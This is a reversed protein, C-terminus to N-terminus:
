RLGVEERAGQHRRSDYSLLFGAIACISAAICLPPKAAENLFTLWHGQGFMLGAAQSVVFLVGGGLLIALTVVFVAQAARKTQQM